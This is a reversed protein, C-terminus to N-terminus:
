RAEQEVKRRLAHLMAGIEDLEERLPAVQEEGAYRLDRALLLFYDAEGASGQAISIHRAFDGATARRSGEAVNAAVSVTARRLQSILGFREDAPFGASFEYVRLVLAHARQWVKLDSYRQMSRGGTLRALPQYVAREEPVVTTAFSWRGLLVGHFSEYRTVSSEDSGYKRAEVSQDEATVKQAEDASAAHEKEELGGPDTEEVELLEDDGRGLAELLRREGLGAREVPGDAIQVRGGDVLLIEGPFEEGLVGHLLAEDADEGRELGAHGELVVAGLVAVLTAQPEPRALAEV